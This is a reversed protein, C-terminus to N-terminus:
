FHSQVYQAIPVPVAYAHLDKLPIGKKQFGSSEVQWFQIWLRQHSLLHKHPEKNELKLRYPSSAVTKQFDSHKALEKQGLLKTSEILPFQWLNQWIGKTKRKELLIENQPTVCVLFNFFREKVKGKKQKVPLAAVRGQQNAICHSSFPCASCDTAKPTCQLAGFEMMAQNFDGPRDKDMLATAKAKFIKHAGSSDIPTDMGFCRSLFRYVNGDVVAQPEDFSISAIASATYDGVGKLMLLEKFTNPFIGQRTEVIYKAAAHLNRARSYYGLGQWLKLIEDEPAKALDNVTPYHQVFANYYPMGQAVRTQQMIIESLWIKYPNKDERWPFNRKNTAYWHMLEKTWQM